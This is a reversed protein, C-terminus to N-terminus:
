KFLNAYKNYRETVESGEGLQLMSAHDYPVDSQKAGANLSSPTFNNDAIVIWFFVFM